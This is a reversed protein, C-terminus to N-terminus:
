KRGDIGRPYIQKKKKKRSSEPTRDVTEGTEKQVCKSSHTKTKDSSENHGM